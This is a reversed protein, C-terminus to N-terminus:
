ALNQSALLILQPVRRCYTRMELDMETCCSFTEALRPQCYWNLSGETTSLIMSVTFLELFFHHACVHSQVQSHHFALRNQDQNNDGDIYTKQDNRSNLLDTMLCSAHIVLEDVYNFNALDQPRQRQNGRVSMSLPVLFPHVHTSHRTESTVHPQSRHEAARGHQQPRNDASTGFSKTAPLTSLM